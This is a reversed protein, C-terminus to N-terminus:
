IAESKINKKIFYRLFYIPFYLICSAGTVISIFLYHSAEKWVAGLLPLLGTAIISFGFIIPILVLMLPNFLIRDILKLLRYLGNWKVLVLNFFNKFGGRSKLRFYSLTFYVIFPIYSPLFYIFNKLFPKGMGLDMAFKVVRFATMTFLSFLIFPSIILLLFDLIKLLYERM